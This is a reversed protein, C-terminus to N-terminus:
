CAVRSSVKCMRTSLSFCIGRYSRSIIVHKLHRIKMFRTTYISAHKTSVIGRARLEEARADLEALEKEKERRRVEYKREMEEEYDRKRKIYHAIEVKWAREVENDYDLMRMVRELDLLKGWHQFQGPGFKKERGDTYKFELCGDVIAVHYIRQALLYELGEVDYDEDLPLM